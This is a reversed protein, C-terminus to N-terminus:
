RRKVERKLGLQHISSVRSEYEVM